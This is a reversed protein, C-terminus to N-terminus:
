GKEELAAALDNACRILYEAVEKHGRKNAVEAGDRWKEPLKKALELRDSLSMNAQELKKIYEEAFSNSM